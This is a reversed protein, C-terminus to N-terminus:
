QLLQSMMREIQANNFSGTNDRINMNMNLAVQASQQISQSVLGGLDEPNMRAMDEAAITVRIGKQRSGEPMVRLTTPFTAGFEGGQPPIVYSGDPMPAVEAQPREDIVLPSNGMLKPLMLGFAASLAVMPIMGLAMSIGQGAAESALRRGFSAPPVPPAKTARQLHEALARRKGVLDDWLDDIDTGGTLKARNKASRTPLSDDVPIGRKPRTGVMKSQGVLLAPDNWDDGAFNMLNTILGKLEEIEYGAFQGKNGELADLVDVMLDANKEWYGRAFLRAASIEGAYKNDYKGHDFNTLTGASKKGSIASQVAGDLFRRYKPLSEEDYISALSRMKLEINRILGTDAQASHDALLRNFTKGDITIQYSINGTPDDVARHLVEPVEMIEQDLAARAKQRLEAIEDDHMGFYPNNSREIGRKQRAKLEELFAKQADDADKAARMVRENDAFQSDKVLDEYKSTFAHIWVQDGDSDRGMVSVTTRDFIFQNQGLIDDDLIRARVLQISSRDSPNAGAMIYQPGAGDSLDLGLNEAMSRSIYATPESTEINLSHVRGYASAALPTTGSQFVQGKAYLADSILVNYYDDVAKKYFNIREQRTYRDKGRTDKRNQHAIVDERAKLVRQLHKQREGLQPYKGGDRHYASMEYPAVPILDYEDGLNLGMDLLFASKGTADVDFITDKYHQIEMYEEPIAKILEEQNPLVKLQTRDLGSQYSYARDVERNAAVVDAWEKQNILASQVERVKDFYSTAHKFGDEDLYEVDRLGLNVATRKTQEGTEIDINRHTTTRMHEDQGLRRIELHITEIDQDGVRNYKSVGKFVGAVTEQGLFKELEPIKLEQDYDILIRPLYEGSEFQYRTDLIARKVKIGAKEFAEEIFRLNEEHQLAAKNQLIFKNVLGEAHIHFDRREGRGTGLKTLVIADVGEGAILELVERETVARVIGKQSHAGIKMGQDGPVTEEILFRIGRDHLERGIIRGTSKEHAGRFRVPAGDSDYGLITGPTLEVGTLSGAESISNVLDRDIEVIDVDKGYMKTRQQELLVALDKSLINQEEYTTLFEIGGGFYDAVMRQQDPTLEEFRKRIQADTMIATKVTVGPIVGAGKFDEYRVRDETVAMTNPILRDDLIVGDKLLRSTARNSLSEFNDFQRYAPRAADLTAGWPYMRVTNAEELGFIRKVSVWEHKAYSADFAIGFHGTIFEELYRNIDPRNLFDDIGYGEELAQIISLDVHYHLLKKLSNFNSGDVFNFESMLAPNPLDSASVAKTANSRAFQYAKMAGAINGEAILAKINGSSRKISDTAHEYLSKVWLKGRVVGDKIYATEERGPPTIGIIMQNLRGDITAGNSEIRPLELLAAYQRAQAINGEEMAARAMRITDSKGVLLVPNTVGGRTELLVDATIGLDKDTFSAVMSQVIEDLSKHKDRLHEPIFRNISDVLASPERGYYDDYFTTTKQSDFWKKFNGGIDMEGKDRNYVSAYGDSEIKAVRHGMMRAESTSPLSVENLDHASIDVVELPDLELKKAFEPDEAKDLLVSILAQETPGTSVRRQIQEIEDETLLGQGQLQEIINDLTIKEADLKKRVYQTRGGAINSVVARIRAAPDRTSPIEIEILENTTPHTITFGLQRSEPRDVLKVKGRRDGYVAENFDRHFRRLARNRADIARYDDDRGLQNISSIAALYHNAEQSLRPYLERFDRVWSDPTDIEPNWKLLDKIDRDTLSALDIGEDRLQRAKSYFHEARWLSGHEGSFLREYARRAKDYELFQGEELLPVSVNDGVFIGHDHIHRALESRNKFSIVHKNASIPDEFVASYFMQDWEGHMSYGLFRFQEGSRMGHWTNQPLLEGNPDFTSILGGREIGGRTWYFIDGTQITSESIRFDMEPRLVKRQSVDKAVQDSIAMRKALEQQLKQNKGLKDAIQYLTEIDIDAQHASGEPAVGLLEAVVEQKMYGLQELGTRESLEKIFGPDIEKGTIDRWFKEPDGQYATNLIGYLDVQKYKSAELAEIWTPLDAQLRDINDLFAKSEAPALEKALNRAEDLGAQLQRMYQTISDIDSGVGLANWSVVAESGVLQDMFSALATHQYEGYRQINELGRRMHPVLESLDTTDKIGGTWTAHRLVSGQRLQAAQGSMPASLDSYKMLDIVFRRESETISKGLDLDNIIDTLIDETKKDLKLLNTVLNGDQDRSAIETISIFDNRVGGLWETDFIMWDNIPNERYVETELGFIEKFIGYSEVSHQAGHGLGSSRSAVQKIALDVPKIKLGDPFLNARIEGLEEPSFFPHLKFGQSSTSYGIYAPMYTSTMTADYKALIEDYQPLYDPLAHWPIHKTVPNHRSSYRTGQEQAARRKAQQNPLSAQSHKMIQEKAFQKNLIRKQKYKSAM